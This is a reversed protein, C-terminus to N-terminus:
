KKVALHLFTRIHNVSHLQKVLTLMIMFASTWTPWYRVMRTDEHKMRLSRLLDGSIISLNERHGTGKSMIKHSQLILLTQYKLCFSLFIFDDFVRLFGRTHKINYRWTPGYLCTSNLNNYSITFRCHFWQLKTM